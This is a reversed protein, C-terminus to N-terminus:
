LLKRKIKYIKFSLREYFIYKLFIFVRRFKPKGDYDHICKDCYNQIIDKRYKLNKNNFFIKEGSNKKLNGIKKSVVACYYINGRSDMTIGENKWACGMLRKPNDSNLYYFISFYKFKHYWNKTKNIRSHFFEKAMQKYIPICEVSYTDKTNINGIREIGVGLRYKMKYKYKKAFTDLEILHFVNQKIVTCGIDLSDCYKSQNKMIENITSTTRKFANPVGRISDHVKGVGDLSISVHFQINKNHCLQYIQKLNKLLLSQNIGNSIINLYKIKPLKLIEKVYDQLNILLTPEGGNVGVSNVEKFISDKLCMSFEKLTMENSNDMRWINCMICCANCRYTIPLQLVKPYNRKSCNLKSLSIFYLFHLFSFLKYFKKNKKIFTKLLIKYKM